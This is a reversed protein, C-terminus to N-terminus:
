PLLRVRTRRTVANGADDTARLRVRARVRRGSRLRARLARRVRRTTRLRIATRRGAPLAAAAMRFRQKGMRAVARVTCAERPCRVYLQLGGARRRLPRQRGRRVLSFAVARPAYRRILGGDPRERVPLELTLRSVTTTFSGNSPRAYPSDRGLLELKLRHGAAFRYAMPPLQFTQVGDRRPRFLGHQVFTQGDPGIDWIRASVQPFQGANGMEAVVTPSGMLTFGTPVALEYTAAGPDREAALTPCPTAAGFPDTRLANTASGGASTFTQRQESKLVVAGPHQAAWTPTAFPGEEPAGNCGVTRTKVGNLPRTSADGKLHRAFLKEREENALTADDALSGRNHAFEGTLVVGLKAQPFLRRVIGNWRLAEDAPMIDDLWGDYTVTPAPERRQSPPLDALLYYASRFRRFQARVHAALKADYPEGRDLMEKWAIVDADPDAGKPAFWGATDGLRFLGELYSQKVVGFGDGYPNLPRYDLTRGTPVLAQALDSWGIRPAAAAIKMATGEPSRWPALRGDPLMTRDRLAALLLSQGGGYSTGTVGIAPKALGEDVLRGALHQTDRGEFRADALHSWGRECGGPTRSVPVGCSLGQGRASYAMVAYGGRAWRRPEESDDFAGAKTAGFGHLSVILPFPGPRGAPLYVDVDLPTRDWSPVRTELTGACTEVDGSPVCEIGLASRASAASADSGLVALTILPILLHLRM